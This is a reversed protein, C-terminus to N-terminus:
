QRDTHFGGLWGVYAQKGELAIGVVLKPNVIKIM